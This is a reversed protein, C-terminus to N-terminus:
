LGEGATVVVSESASGTLRKLTIKREIGVSIPQSSQAPIPYSLTDSPTTAGIEILLETTGRNEIWATVDDISSYGPNEPLNVVVATAGVSIRQAALTFPRFASSEAM